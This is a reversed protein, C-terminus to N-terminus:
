CNYYYYSYYSYHIIVIIISIIVVIVIIMIVIISLVCFMHLFFFITAVISFIFHTWCDCISIYILWSLPSEIGVM